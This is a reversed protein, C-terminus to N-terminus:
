STLYQTARLNIMKSVLTWWEDTDQILHIWDVSDCEAETLNM